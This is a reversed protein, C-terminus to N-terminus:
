CIVPPLAFPSGYDWPQVNDAYTVSIAFDLTLLLFAFGFLAIM